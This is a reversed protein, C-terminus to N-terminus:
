GIEDWEKIWAKCEEETDFFEQTGDGLYQVNWCPSFPELKGAMDDPTAIYGVDFRGCKTTYSKSM